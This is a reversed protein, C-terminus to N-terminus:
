PLVIASAICVSLVPGSSDVWICHIPSVVLQSSGLDFALIFSSKCRGRVPYAGYLYQQSLHGGM